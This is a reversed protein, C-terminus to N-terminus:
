SFFSCGHGQSQFVLQRVPQELFQFREVQLRNVETICIRAPASNSVHVVDKPQMVGEHVPNHTLPRFVDAGLRTLQEVLHVDVAEDSGVASSPLCVMSVCCGPPGRVCGALQAYPLLDLEHRNTHADDAPLPCELTELDQSFDIASTRLLRVPIEVVDSHAFVQLTLAIAAGQDDRDEPHSVLVLHRHEQHDCVRGVLDVVFAEAEPKQGLVLLRLQALGDREVLGHDTIGAPDLHGRVTHAFQERPRALM